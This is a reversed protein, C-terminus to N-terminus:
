DDDFHGGITLLFIVPILIGLFATNAGVSAPVCVLIRDYVGRCWLWMDSWSMRHAIFDEEGCDKLIEFLTM